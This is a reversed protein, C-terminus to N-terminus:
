KVKLVSLETFVRKVLDLSVSMNGNIVGYLEMIAGETNQTCAPSGIEGLGNSWWEASQTETIRDEARQKVGQSLDGWGELMVGGHAALYGACLVHLIRNNCPRKRLFNLPPLGNSKVETNIIWEDFFHDLNLDACSNVSTIYISGERNDFWNCGKTGGSFLVVPFTCKDFLVNADENRAHLFLIDFAEYQGGLLENTIDKMSVVSCDRCNRMQTEVYEKISKRREDDKDILLIRM